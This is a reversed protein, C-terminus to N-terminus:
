PTFLSFFLIPSETQESVLDIVGKIRKDLVDASSKIGLM